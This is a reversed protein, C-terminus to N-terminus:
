REGIGVIKGGSLRLVRNISPVLDTEHHTAMVMLIGARALQELHVLVVVRTAVDLGTCPEDLLLLRPSNVMARALLVRRLQGYSIERPRLHALEELSLVRLWRRAARRDAPTPADHLGISAHRGSIVIEEVTVDEIAYDSQLEASLLGVTKKFDKIHTGRPFDRRKLEGGAAPSLDGYLTKILTSKGAGNAGVIAWQEGSRIDWTIQELVRHGNVYVDADRISIVPEGRQPGRGKRAVDPAILRRPARSRRSAPAGFAREFLARSSRGAHRVRGQELILLDTVSDPLDQARHVAIVWPMQSRRSSELFRMLAARRMGDLGNFVEDLLLLRPRAAIARAILALRREGYSLTLFRREALSDLGLRQILQAIRRRQKANPRELVIDTRLLGTGILEAVTLNWGYRDYKDQREAGIYAILEKVGLPEAHRERGVVYLRTGRRTPKPWVDGAVLKLLQTKGAGNHGLLGWREGPRIHWSVDRLVRREGRDLDIHELKVTLANRAV